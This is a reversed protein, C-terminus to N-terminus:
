RGARGSPLPPPQRSLCQPGGHSRSGLGPDAFFKRHGGLEEAEADMDDM